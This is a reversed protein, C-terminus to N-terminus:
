LKEFHAKLLKLAGSLEADFEPMDVIDKAVKVADILDDNDHFVESLINCDYILSMLIAFAPNPKASKFVMAQLNNRIEQEFAYNANDMRESLPIWLLKTEEKRLIGRQVLLENLDNMIDSKFNKELDHVQAVVEHGTKIKKLIQDLVRNGVGTSDIVEIHGDKLNIKKHLYLELIGASLLGPVITREAAALLRGEEDDMAILYLGEAISLKM